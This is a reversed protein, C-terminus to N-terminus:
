WGPQSYMGKPPAPENTGVAAAPSVTGQSGNAATSVSSTQQAALQAGMEDALKAIEQRQRESHEQQLKAQELAKDVVSAKGALRTGVESLNVSTQGPKFIADLLGQEYTTLTTGAGPSYELMHRTWGLFGQEDRVVLLGRQALDFITGLFNGSGSTLKGVVAPPLDSPPYPSLSQAPLNLERRDARITIFLWVGGLLLAALGSLFGAPLAVASTAASAQERAQWRPAASILSGAPFKAILIVGDNDGISATTLKTGGAVASADFSRDLTPTELPEVGPVYNLTVTSTAISYGHDPPIAYWFLTDAQGSRIVGAVQYRVTSVHTTDSAPPFHWTVKLPDGSGVEVQGPGTGPPMRSGDMSAELFTVGDTGHQSIERFAYTFPGGDFRFAVTETVLMGGGPQLDLQVDFREAHYTKAALAPNAFFLLLVIVFVSASLKKAM